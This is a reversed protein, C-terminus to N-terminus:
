CVYKKRYKVLLFLAIFSIITLAIFYTLQLCLNSGDVKSICDGSNTEYTLCLGTHIIELGFLFVGLFAITRWFYFTRKRLRFM